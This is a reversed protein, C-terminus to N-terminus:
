ESQIKVAVWYSDGREGKQKVAVGHAHCRATLAGVLVDPVFVDGVHGGGKERPKFSGNFLKWYQSPEARDCQRLTRAYKVDRGPASRVYLFDGAHVQAAEPLVNHYALSIEGNALLLSTVGMERNVRTVIACTEPLLDWPQGSRERLALIRKHKGNTLMRVSIPAGVQLGVLLDFSNMPLRVSESGTPLDVFVIGVPGQEGKVDKTLLLADTWPIDHMLVDDALEALSHYLEAGETAIAEIFWNERQLRALEDPIKWGKQQRLAIVAEIESRAVGDYGARHLALALQQRVSLLLEPKKSGCLVSRCLCALHRADGPPFCNALKQWVWFERRKTRAFPVLYRLAEDFQRSKCLGVALFYPFWEEKPFHPAYKKLFELATHVYKEDPENDITKGIAYIVHQVVSPFERSENDTQCQLDQSRLNNEPGWWHLFACFKPFVGLRAARAVIELIRSHILSPREVTKLHAYRRVLNAIKQAPPKKEKLLGNLQWWIEWALANEIAANGRNQRLFQELVAAAQEHNGSQSLKKSQALVSVGPDQARQVAHLANELIQNDVLIPLALIEGTLHRKKNPEDCDKWVSYLCWFLVKIHEPDNRNEAYLQRAKLLAEQLYGERRLRYVEQIQNM